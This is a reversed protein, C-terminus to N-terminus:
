MDRSAHTCPDAPPAALPCGTTRREHRPCASGGKHSRSNPWRGRLRRCARPMRLGWRTAQNGKESERKIERMEGGEGSEIDYIYVYINIFKYIFIHISICIHINMYIYIDYIHIYM